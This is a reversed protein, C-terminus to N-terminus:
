GSARRASSRRTEKHLYFFLFRFLYSDKLRENVSIGLILADTVRNKVFKYVNYIIIIFFFIIIITLVYNVEYEHVYTNIYFSFSLRDYM